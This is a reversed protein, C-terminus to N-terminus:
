SVIYKDTGKPRYYVRERKQRYNDYEFTVGIILTKSIVVVRKKEEPFPKVAIQIM